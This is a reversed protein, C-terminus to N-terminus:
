RQEAETLRGGFDHIDKKIDHIASLVGEFKSSFVNKMDSIARMVKDGEDNANPGTTDGAVLQLMNAEGSREGHKDPHKKTLTKRNAM